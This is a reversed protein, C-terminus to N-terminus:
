EGRLIEEVTPGAKGIHETEIIFEEDTVDIIEVPRIDIGATNNDSHLYSQNGVKVGLAAGFAAGSLIDELANGSSKKKSMVEVSKDGVLTKVIDIRKKITDMRLEGIRALAIPYCADTSVIMRDKLIELLSDFDSAMVALDKLIEPIEADVQANLKDARTLPSKRTQPTLDSM